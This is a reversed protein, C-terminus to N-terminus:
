CVGQERCIERYLSDREVPTRDAKRILRMLGERSLAQPSAAGAQHGIQEEVVTGDLDNVGFALAVQALKVGLMVWYAKIHPINDLFLRAVALTKLIDVGGPGRLGDLRTAVHQFPLAVFAQFGGTEDQLARLGALHDIREAQTELHGFLMTANSRLGAAHVVRMVELWRSGSIKEPCLQARAREAFIEAGGGPLSQLGAAQLRRIVTELPLGSISAFHELEVATFGKIHLAPGAQRIAGLLQEYFALPLHPHLGGVVHVETAGAAAAGGARAAIEDLTLTYGGTDGEDRRFACFACNNVCLNTYNIHRNVNFYVKDGHLRRNALAALEGVALLDPCQFLFAADDENLRTGEQVKAAIEPLSM